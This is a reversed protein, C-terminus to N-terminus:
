QACIQQTAGEIVLQRRPPGNPARQSALGSGSTNAHGTAAESPKATNREEGVPARGYPSSLRHPSVKLRKGHYARQRIQNQFAFWLFAAYSKVNM